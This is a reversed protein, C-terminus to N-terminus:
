YDRPCRTDRFKILRDGYKERLLGNIDKRQRDFRAKTLGSPKSKTFDARPLIKSIFVEQIGAEKFARALNCIDAFIDEQESIVSIRNGGIAFFTFNLRAATMKKM